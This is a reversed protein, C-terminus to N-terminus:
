FSWGKSTGWDMMFQETERGADALWATFDAIAGASENDALYFSRYERKRLGLDGFPLCLQGAILEDIVLFLPFLGIGIRELTAQLAFFM